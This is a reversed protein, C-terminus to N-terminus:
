YKVMLIINATFKDCTGRILKFLEEEIQLKSPSKVPYANQIKAFKKKKVDISPVM